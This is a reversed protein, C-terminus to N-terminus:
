VNNISQAGFIPLAVPYVIIKNIKSHNPILVLANGRAKILYNIELATKARKLAATGISLNLALHAFIM